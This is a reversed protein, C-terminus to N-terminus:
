RPRTTVSRTMSQATGYDNGITTSAPSTAAVAECLLIMASLVNHLVHPTVSVQGNVIGDQLPAIINQAQQALQAPTAM